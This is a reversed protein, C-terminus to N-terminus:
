VPVATTSNPYRERWESSVTDCLKGSVVAPQSTTTAADSRPQIGWEPKEHVQKCVQIVWIISYCTTLGISKVMVHCTYSQDISLVSIGSMQQSLHCWHSTDDPAWTCASRNRGGASICPYTVNAFPSLLTYTSGSMESRHVYLACFNLNLTLIFHRTGNWKADEQV